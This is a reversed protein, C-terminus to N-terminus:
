TFFDKIKNSFSVAFGLVGVVIWFPELWELAVSVGIGMLFFLGYVFVPVDADSRAKLAGLLLMLAGPPILGLLTLAATDCIGTLVCLLTPATDRIDGVNTCLGFPNPDDGDLIGDGDDDTDSVNLIGDGDIDDDNCNKIGDGDQDDDQVDPINDGDDDTDTDDPIGDGDLDGVEGGTPTTPESIGIVDDIINVIPNNSGGSVTFVYENDVVIVSPYCVFTDCQDVGATVAVSGIQSFETDSLFIILNDAVAGNVFFYFKDQDLVPLMTGAFGNDGGQNTLEPTIVGTVNDYLYTDVGGSGTSAVMIRHNHGDIETWASTVNPLSEQDYITPSCAVTYCPEFTTLFTDCIVAGMQGDDLTISVANISTCTTLTGFDVTATQVTFAVPNFRKLTGATSCTQWLYGLEDYKMKGTCGTDAANMVEIASGNVRLGRIVGGNNVIVDSSSGYAPLIQVSGITFSLGLAGDDASALAVGGSTEVYIDDDCAMWVNAGFADLSSGGCDSTTAPLTGGAFDQTFDVSTKAMDAYVSDFSLSLGVVSCVVVLLLLRTNASM